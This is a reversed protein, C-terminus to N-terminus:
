KLSPKDTSPLAVPLAGQRSLVGAMDPPSYSSSKLVKGDSRFIPQGHEDLKSMNSRHIEALVADLDIGYTLAAGYAVYVIDGLADALAFLDERKTADAFEGVEEVLLDVRLKALEDGVEVTPKATMPLRFVSHFEAVARSAFSHQAEPPTGENPRIM